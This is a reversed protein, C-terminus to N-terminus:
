IEYHAYSTSTFKRESTPPPSVLKGVQLSDVTAYHSAFDVEVSALRSVHWSSTLLEM